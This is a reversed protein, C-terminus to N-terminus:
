NEEIPLGTEVSYRTTAAEIDGYAWHVPTIDIYKTTEPFYKPRAILTNIMGVVQERLTPDNPRYTGDGFGSVIGANYMMYVYSKAWYDDPIDSVGEVPTADVNINLFKWYKAFVTAMEGRSIPDNPRFSGNTDGVFLGTRAIAQVYPYYWEGEKVDSFKQEGTYEINLKLIKAFMTAVEARTVSRQPGFSQDPYGYVYPDYFEVAGLPGQEDGVLFVIIAASDTKGSAVHTVTVVTEGQKLATVVGNEDVSAIEPDEVSWIVRKDTSNTITETLDYSFFDPDAETGYELEVEDRDLTIGPQPTTPPVVPPTVPPTTPPATYNVIVNVTDTLETDDALTVTVKVVAPTGSTAAIGTVLGNQDLTINNQGSVISWEIAEYVGNPTLQAALDSVGQEATKGYGIELVVGQSEINPTKPDTIIVKRWEAILTIHENVPSDFNYPQGNLTWQVFVSNVKTPDEPKTAKEGVSILQEEVPTGGNSNFTVLYDDVPTVTIYVTAENSTGDNTTFTYNFTDSGNFQDAPTYTVVSGDVELTGNNPQQTIEIVGNTIREDNELVYIKLSTDENTVVIDDLAVPGLKYTETDVESVNGVPDIAIAKVTTTATVDF